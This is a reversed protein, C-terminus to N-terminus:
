ENVVRRTNSLSANKLYKRHLTRLSRSLYAGVTREDVELTEAIERNRLGGFFKLTIVERGRPSLTGILQHLEVAMEQQLVAHDPSLTAAPLDAMHELPVLTNGRQQRRYFDQIHNHAIRFLWAAFSWDGRVTFHDLGVLAKLFTESVVDEIDQRRGIHYAVYTYLRPFYHRYLDKFADPDHRARKVLVLEQSRGVIDSM